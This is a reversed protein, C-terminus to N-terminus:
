RLYCCENGPDAVVEYPFCDEVVIDSHCDDDYYGYVDDDSYQTLLYLRYQMM